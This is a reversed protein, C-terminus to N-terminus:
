IMMSQLVPKSSQLIPLLDALESPIGVRNIRILALLIKM